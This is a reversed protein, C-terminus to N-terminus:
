YLNINKFDVLIRRRKIGMMLPNSFIKKVGRIHPHAKKLSRWPSLARYFIEKQRNGM